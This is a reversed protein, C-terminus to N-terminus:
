ASTQSQGRKEPRFSVPANQPRTGESYEERDLPDGRELDPGDRELDTSHGGNPPEIQDEM